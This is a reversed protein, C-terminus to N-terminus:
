LCVVFSPVVENSDCVEVQYVTGGIRVTQTDTVFTERGDKDKCVIEILSQGGKSLM